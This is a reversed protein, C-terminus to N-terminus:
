SDPDSLGLFMSIQIGLVPLFVAIIYLVTSNVTYHIRSVNDFGGDAVTEDSLKKGPHLFCTTRTRLEGGCLSSPLVSLKEPDLGSRRNNLSYVIKCTLPVTCVTVFLYRGDQSVLLGEYIFGFSPPPHFNRPRLWHTCSYAPAWIFKPSRVGYTNLRHYPM